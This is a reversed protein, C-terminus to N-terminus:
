WKKNWQGEKFDPQGELVWHQQEASLHSWPTDRPIGATEAYRLLDDHIEKWAPTQIAKIALACRSNTTPFSWGWDVGIVARGFGRCSACAGMATSPSCPPSPRATACRVTRSCHLGSSFQWLTPTNTPAASADPADSNARRAPLVGGHARQRAAAGGEIAEIARAREVPGFSLPRGGGRGPAPARGGRAAGASQYFWQGVAM